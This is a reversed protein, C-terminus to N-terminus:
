KVKGKVGEDGAEWGLFPFFSSRLDPRGGQVGESSGLAGGWVSPHTCTQRWPALGASMRREMEQRRRLRRVVLRFFSDMSLGM